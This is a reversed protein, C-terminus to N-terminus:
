EKLPCTGITSRLGTTSRLLMIGGPGTSRISINRDNIKRINISGVSINHDSIIGVNISRDAPRPVTIRSVTGEPLREKRTEPRRNRDAKTVKGMARAGMWFVM